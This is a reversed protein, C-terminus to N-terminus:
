AYFTQEGWHCNRGLNACLYGSWLWPGVEGREVSFLFSKFHSFLSIWPFLLVLIPSDALYSLCEFQVKEELGEYEGARIQPMTKRCYPMAKDKVYPSSRGFKFATIKHLMTHQVQVWPHIGGWVPVSACLAPISKILFSPLNLVKSSHLSHHIYIQKTDQQCLWSRCLMRLRKGLGKVLTRQSKSVNKKLSARSQSSLAFM